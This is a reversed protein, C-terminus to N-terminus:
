PSAPAGAPPTADYGPLRKYAAQWRKEHDHPARGNIYLPTVFLQGPCQLAMDAARHTSHEEVESVPVGASRAADRKNYAAIVGETRGGINHLYYIRLRRTM